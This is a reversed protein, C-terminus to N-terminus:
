DLRNPLPLPFDGLKPPLHNFIPAYVIFISLPPLLGTRVDVNEKYSFPTRHQQQKVHLIVKSERFVKARKPPYAIFCLLSLLFVFGNGVM